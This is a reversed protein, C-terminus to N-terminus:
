EQKSELLNNALCNEIKELESLKSALILQLLGSFWIDWLTSFCPCSYYKIQQMKIARLAVYKKDIM